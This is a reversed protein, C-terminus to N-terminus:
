LVKYKRKTQKNPSLRGEYWLLVNCHPCICIPKGFDWIEIDTSASNMDGRSNQFPIEQSTAIDKTRARKWNRKQTIIEKRKRRASTSSAEKTKSEDTCLKKQRKKKLIM